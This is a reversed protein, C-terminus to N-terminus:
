LISEQHTNYYQVGDTRVGQNILENKARRTNNTTHGQQDTIYKILDTYINSNIWEIMNKLAGKLVTSINEFRQSQIIQQLIILIYNNKKSFLIEFHTCRDETHSLVFMLTKKTFLLDTNLNRNKCYNTPLKMMILVYTVYDPVDPRTIKSTFLLKRIFLYLLEIYNAPISSSEVDLKSRQHNRFYLSYSSLLRNRIIYSFTKTLLWIVIPISTSTDILPYNNKGKSKYLLHQPPKLGNNRNPDASIGYLPKSM